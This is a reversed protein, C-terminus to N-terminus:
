TLLLEFGCGLDLSFHLDLPLLFIIVARFPLDLSLSFIIVASFPLDLPLIMRM